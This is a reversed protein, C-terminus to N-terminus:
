SLFAARKNNWKKLVRNESFDTIRLFIDHVCDFKGIDFFTEIQTELNKREIQKM